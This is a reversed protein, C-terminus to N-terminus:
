KYYNRYVQPGRICLEGDGGEPGLVVGTEIDLIKVETNPVPKGCSGPVYSISHTIHSVPSLETM